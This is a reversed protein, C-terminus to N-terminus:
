SLLKNKMQRNCKAKIYYVSGLNIYDKLFFIETMNSSQLSLFILFNTKHKLSLFVPSRTLFSHIQFLGALFIIYTIKIPWDIYWTNKITTLTKNETSQFMIQYKSTM